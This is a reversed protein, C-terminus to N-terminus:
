MWVKHLEYYFVTYSIHWNYNKKKELESRGRNGYTTRTVKILSMANLAFDRKCDCKLNRAMQSTLFPVDSIHGTSKNKLIPWLELFLSFFRSTTPEKYMKSHCKNTFKEWFCIKKEFNELPPVRQHNKYKLCNSWYRSFFLDVPWM